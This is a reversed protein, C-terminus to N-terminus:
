CLIAVWETILMLYLKWLWRLILVIMSMEKRLDSKQNILSPNVAILWLIEETLSMYTTQRNENMIERWYIFSIQSNHLSTFKMFPSLCFIFLFHPFSDLDKSNTKITERKIEERVGFLYTPDRLNSHRGWIQLHVTTCAIFFM